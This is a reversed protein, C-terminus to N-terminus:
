AEKRDEVDLFEIREAVVEYCTKEILDTEDYRHMRLKGRLNVRCGKRIRDVDDIRGGEYAVVNHWTREVHSHGAIRFTDVTELSFHMMREGLCSLSLRCSGVKGKLGVFNCYNDNM